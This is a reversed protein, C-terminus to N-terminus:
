TPPAAETRPAGFSAFDARAGCFVNLDIHAEPGEYGDLKGKDSYQWFTWDRGDPLRPSFYVDRIWIPYESYEGRLYLSYARGTAYLIPKAGYHAELASLLADLSPKVREKPAPSREYGGYFEVDVAPPLADPERPVNAIFNEAQREGPSDYSFFHYAGTRLGASRAGAWNAAFREDVFGSGETAKLFAFDIGQGALVPWDVAGQWASVDVGRVPYAERSPNNFRLAGTYVLACFCGAALALAALAILWKWKKKM